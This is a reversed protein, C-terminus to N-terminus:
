ASKITKAQYAQLKMRLGLISSTLGIAGVQWEYLSFAPGDVAWHLFMLSDLAMKALHRRLKLIENEAAEDGGPDSQERSGLRRLRLCTLAADCANYALTLASVLRSYFRCRATYMPNQSVYGVWYQVEAYCLGLWFGDRGLTLTHEADRPGSSNLSSWADVGDFSRSIMRATDIYTALKRLEIQKTQPIASVNGLFKCIYQVLRILADRHGPSSSIFEAAKM